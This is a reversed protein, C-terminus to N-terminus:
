GVTVVVKGDHGRAAAVVAGQADLAEAALTHGSTVTIELTRGSKRARWVGAPEGDVVVPGASGLPRWLETAVARDPVLLPRHGLLYTDRPPLLLLPPPAPADDDLVAPDAHLTVDGVDVEVLDDVLDSWVPRLWGPPATVSRTDLWTVLDGLTLPGAVRVVTRLLERAAHDVGPDQAPDTGLRFRLRRGAGPVLEIGAYLTAVRFLGDAVHHVGCGECWPRAIGPVLPSVAASLEGKTATEGPFADRMARAVEDLLAPGDAGSAILTDGYGGLYARLMENDRPRLAARLLPLVARRHLHPSGRMTLALVLEPATTTRQRLGLAASGGPTDQLGVTLADQTDGGHLGQARARHALVQARHLRHAM